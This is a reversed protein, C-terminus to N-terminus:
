DFYANIDLTGTALATGITVTFAGAAGTNFAVDNFDMALVQAGLGAVAVAPIYLNAKFVTVGNLAVTVLDDGATALTAQDTVSLVLKRLNTNAPPNVTATVGAGTITLYKATAPNPLIQTVYPLGNVTTPLSVPVVLGPAVSQLAAEV